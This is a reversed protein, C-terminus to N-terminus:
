SKLYLEGEIGEIFKKDCKKCELESTIMYKSNYKLKHFGIKCLFNRKNKTM